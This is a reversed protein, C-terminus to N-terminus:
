KGFITKIKAFFDSIAGVVNKVGRAFSMIGSAADSVKDITEQLDTVKELLGAEDLSELSRCLSILENIQGDSLSVNYQSSIARIVSRLEDDSMGATENLAMKLDSVIDSADMSGIADALEGTLSLEQASTTKQLEDMTKGTIDEYAYYIGALAGTGSVDFPAAVVIKADRIGATALASIYMEPTFYTINDTTTVELGSGAPRIEVYVCSVSRTGIVASDVSGELYKRELDNTMKLETVAGRQVGFWKYVSEIQEDTLDAGVVTRAISGDDAFAQVAATFLLIAALLLSFLRKM